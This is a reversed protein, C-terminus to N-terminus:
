RDAGITVPIVGIMADRTVLDALQDESYDEVGDPRMPLVLYRVIATSDSVRVEVDEAIHTGFEALVARPESVARSRFPKLKYWDPPLGLVPRPYCSCLTCVILNHVAPTNELVTLQTDDYFTIGLEECATRGNELLRARFGADVWARAIVTGGLAPTRSDLVEIQRRIEDAGFLQQEILLERLATEMVDYYGPRDSQGIEAHPHAHDHDHDSAHDDM